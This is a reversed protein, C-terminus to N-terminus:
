IVRKARKRKIPVRKVREVYFSRLAGAQGKQLELCDIWKIGTETNTVLSHFKFKLGHEGHIKITDGSNVEFGDVIVTPERHFKTPPLDVTKKQRM